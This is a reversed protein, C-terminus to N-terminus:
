SKFFREAREVVDGLVAVRAFWKSDAPVVTWPAIETSTRKLVDRYASEYSPWKRRNRLDEDTLKWSKLPNSRREEFRLKQEDYSLDLLYKLVLVRDSVLMKEVANLEDYARKWDRPPCLEEVREVLVRGYWSRDFVSIVGPEPLRSFFRQMYHQDIEVVNPKGISHVNLGRPDLYETLRKIVGGKGAADPGEFLIVLKQRQGHIRRQLSLFRGQLAKLQNEYDAKSSFYTKAKGHEAQSLISRYKSSV